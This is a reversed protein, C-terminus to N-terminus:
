TLSLELEMFDQAIITNQFIKKAQELLINTNSYRASIHTLILKEVKAKKAINAAQNPTSHGDILAKEILSDDFTSEHILLDAKYAFTEFGEIPRTDGSYIIKRGKRM